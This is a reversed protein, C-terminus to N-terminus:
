GDRSVTKVRDAGISGLKTRAGDPWIVKVQRARRKGGLGFYLRYHGQGYRSGENQGVWQTLKRRGARLKVRAGIAERNGRPGVLDFALWHNRGAPTLNRELRALPFLGRGRQTLQALDRLGDGDVDFWNARAFRTDGAVDLARTESFGRRRQEFLGDPATHLDLDGDNDYDVWNAAVGKRAPLGLDRPDRVRLRGGRNRLLTNGSPAAVFADLDGDGDYDGPAIAEVNQDDNLTELEQLLRLRGGRRFAFVRARFKGVAVLELRGDNDVDLLRNATARNGVVGTAGRVEDFSGDGKGRYLRPRGERCGSFIDLARDRNFDLAYAERGRCTAKRLGSGATAPALADDEGASLLLEHGGFRPLSRSNGSLGGNTIFADARDDRDFDAWAVGHRDGLSISFARDAPNVAEPGVFIRDAPLPQDIKVSFPLDIHNPKVVIRGDAQSEFEIVTRIRSVHRVRVTANIERRVKVKPFTVRVKGSAEGEGMGPIEDLRHTAIRLNPRRKGARVFIYLGPEDYQPKRVLNEVGPFDPNPAFGAERYVDTFGGPTARLLTERFMHNTSYIDLRRDGDYDAVGLDFARKREISLDARDFRPKAAPAAAPLAILALLGLLLGRRLIRRPAGREHM